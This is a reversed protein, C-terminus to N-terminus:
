PLITSSLIILHIIYIDLGGEIIYLFFSDKEKPSM